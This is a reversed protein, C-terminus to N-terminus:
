KDFVESNRSKNRWQYIDRIWWIFNFLEMWSHRCPTLKMFSVNLQRQGSDIDYVFNFLFQQAFHTEIGLQTECKKGFKSHHGNGMEKLGFLKNLTQWVSCKNIFDFGQLSCVSLSFLSINVWIEMQRPNNGFIQKLSLPWRLAGVWLTAHRLPVSVCHHM